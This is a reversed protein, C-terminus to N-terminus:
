TSCKLCEDYLTRYENLMHDLSKFKMNCVIDTAVNVMDYNNDLRDIFNSMIEWPVSWGGGSQEVRSGIAGVNTTLVPYGCKWVETLTYSFSESCIGPMIVIDINFNNLYDNIEDITRYKGTITAYRSWNVDQDEIYGIVFWNVNEHYKMLELLRRSGKHQVLTGIFAINLM